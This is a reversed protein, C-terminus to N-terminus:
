QSAVGPRPAVQELAERLDGFRFPKPLMRSMGADLCEQFESTEASGTLGIIPVRPRGTGAEFERIARTAAIGDMEPLHYDMLIVDFEGSRAFEVATKGNNAHRVRCQFRKLVADVVLRNSEDDEVVLVSLHLATTSLSSRLNSGADM